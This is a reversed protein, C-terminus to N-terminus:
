QRWRCTVPAEGPRARRRAPDAHGLTALHSGPTALHSGSLRWHCGPHTFVAGARNPISAALAPPPGQKEHRRPNQPSCSFLHIFFPALYFYNWSSAGIKFTVRTRTSDPNPSSPFEPDLQHAAAALKNFTGMLPCIERGSVSRGRVAFERAGAGRREWRSVAYGATASAHGM